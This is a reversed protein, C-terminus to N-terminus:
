DISGLSLFVGAGLLILAPPWCLVAVVSWRWGFALPTLYLTIAMSILGVADM